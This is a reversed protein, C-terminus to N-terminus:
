KKGGSVFNYFEIALTLTNGKNVTAALELCQMKLEAKKLEDM